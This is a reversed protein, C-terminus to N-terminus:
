RAPPCTAPDRPGPGTASRWALWALGVVNFCLQRLLRVFAQSFGIDAPLGLMMFVVTEGGEGVGIAVPAVSLFIRAVMTASALFMAEIFTTGAGFLHLVVHIELVSVLRSLVLLAAMAITAGIRERGFERVLDDTSRAREVLDESVRGRIIPIRRLLRVSWEAGGARLAMLYLATPISAIVAAALFWALTRADFLRSGQVFLLLPGAFIMLHKALRFLLNWMLLSSVARRGSVHDSALNAKVIEGGEGLPTLANIAAGALAAGVLHPWAVGRGIGIRWAAVELALVVLFIAILALFGAGVASLHTAIRDWGIEIVMGTLVAIGIGLVVLNFLRKRSM